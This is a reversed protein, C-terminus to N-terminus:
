AHKGANVCLIPKNYETAIKAAHIFSGDGGVSIVAFCDNIADKSDCYEVNSFSSFISELDKIMVATCSLESLKNLVAETVAKSNRRTMNPIIYFKM